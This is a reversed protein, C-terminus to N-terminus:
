MLGALFAEIFMMSLAMAVALIAKLILKLAKGAFSGSKIIELEIVQIDDPDGKPVILVIKDLHEASVKMLKIVTAM